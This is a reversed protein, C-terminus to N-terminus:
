SPFSLKRSVTGDKSVHRCADVPVVRIDSPIWLNAKSLTTHINEPVWRRNKLGLVWVSSFLWPSATVCAHARIGFSLNNMILTEFLLVFSVIIFINVYM